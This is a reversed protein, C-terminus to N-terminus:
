PINNERTTSKIEALTINNAWEYIFPSGNIARNIWKTRRNTRDM